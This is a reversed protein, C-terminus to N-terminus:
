RKALPYYDDDSIEEITDAVLEHEDPEPENQWRGLVGSLVFGIFIGISLIILIGIAIM